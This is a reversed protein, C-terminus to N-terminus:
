IIPVYLLKNMTNTHVMGNNLIHGDLKEIGNKLHQSSNQHIEPKSDKSCIKQHFCLCKQQIYVSSHFRGFRQMKREKGDM